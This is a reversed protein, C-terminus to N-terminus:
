CNNKWTEYGLDERHTQGAEDDADVDVEHELVDHPQVDRSPVEDGSDDDDRDGVQQETEVEDDVHDDVHAALTKRSKGDDLSEECL